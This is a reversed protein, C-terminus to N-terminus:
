NINRKRKLIILILEFIYLSQKLDGQRAVALMLHALSYPSSKNAPLLIGVSPFQMSVNADSWISILNKIRM